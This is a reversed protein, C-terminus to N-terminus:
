WLTYSEMSSPPPTSFIGGAGVMLLLYLSSIGLMRGYGALTAVLCHSFKHNKCNQNLFCFLVPHETYIQPACVCIIEVDFETAFSRM